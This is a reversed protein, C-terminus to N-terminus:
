RRSHPVLAEVAAAEPYVISSAAECAVLAILAALIVSVFGGGLWVVSADSGPEQSLGRLVVFAAILIGVFVALFVLAELRQAAVLSVWLEPTSQGFRSLIEALVKDTSEM